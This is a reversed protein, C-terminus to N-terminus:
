DVLEGPFQVSYKRIQFAPLVSDNWKNLFHFSPNTNGEKEISNVPIKLEFLIFLDMKGMMRAHPEPVLSQGRERLSYGFCNM